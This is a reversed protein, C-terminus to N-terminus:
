ITEYVEGCLTCVFAQYEYQGHGNDDGPDNYDVVVSELELSDECDHDHEIVQTQPFM